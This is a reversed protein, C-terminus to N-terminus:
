LINLKRKILNLIQKNKSTSLVTNNEFSALEEEKINLQQAFQKRKMKKAMRAAMLQKGFKIKEIKSAETSEDLKKANDPTNKNTSVKVYSKTLGKRAAERKQINLEDSTIKSGYSKGINVVKFDQHNM